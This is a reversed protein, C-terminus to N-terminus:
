LGVQCAEDSILYAVDTSQKKLLAIPGALRMTQEMYDMQTMQHTINELWSYVSENHAIMKAMKQRIVPQSMLNKGFVKRQMAWRFCEEIIKRNGFIVIACIFRPHSSTSREQAFLM